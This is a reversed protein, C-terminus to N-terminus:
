LSRTSARTRYQCNSDASQHLFEVDMQGRAREKAIQQLELSPDVGFVHKVQASYFPLNLGSGSGIELVEGRAPPILATSRAKLQRLIRQTKVL